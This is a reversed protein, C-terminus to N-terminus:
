GQLFRMVFLIIPGAIKDLVGAYIIVLLILFGFPKIKQYQYYAEGKLM